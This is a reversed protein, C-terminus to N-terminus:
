ITLLESLLHSLIGIFSVHRLLHTYQELGARISLGWLFENVNSTRIILLETLL